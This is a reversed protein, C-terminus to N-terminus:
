YRIGHRHIAQGLANRLENFVIVPVNTRPLREGGGRSVLVDTRAEAPTTAGTGGQNVPLAGNSGKQLLKGIAPISVNAGNITVSINQNATTTAFAEWAGINGDYDKILQSISQALGDVSMADTV